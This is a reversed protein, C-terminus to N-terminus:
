IKKLLKKLENKLYPNNNGNLYSGLLMLAQHRNSSIGEGGQEREGRKEEEAGGIELGNERAWVLYNKENRDGSTDAFYQTFRMLRDPNNINKLIYEGMNSGIYNINKIFEDGYIRKIENKLFDSRNKQRTRGGIKNYNARITLPDDQLDKKQQEAEETLQSISPIEQLGENPNNLDLIQQEETKLKLAQEKLRLDELRAQITNSRGSNKELYFKELDGYSQELQKALNAYYESDM